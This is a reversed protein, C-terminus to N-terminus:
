RNRRSRGKVGHAFALLGFGCALLIKLDPEPAVTETVQFHLNFAADDPGAYEFTSAPVYTGDIAGTISTAYYDGTWTTAGDETLV